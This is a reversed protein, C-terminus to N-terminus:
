VNMLMCLAPTQPPSGEDLLYFPLDHGSKERNLRGARGPVPPANWREQVAVLANHCDVADHTGSEDVASRAGM